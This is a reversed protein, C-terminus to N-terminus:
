TIFCSVKQLSISVGTAELDLNRPIPRIFISSKGVVSRLLKPSMVIASSLPELVKSNAVYRM